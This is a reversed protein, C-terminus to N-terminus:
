ESWRRLDGVRRGHPFRALCERAARRAGAEDGTQALAQVRRVRLDEELDRPVGLSLATAFSRAAGRPDGLREAQLRGLTFAVVPTQADTPRRALFRQYLAAAAPYRRAERAAEAQALLDEPAGERALAGRRPARPTTELPVAVVPEPLPVVRETVVAAMAVAAPAPARVVLVEGAGLALRGSPVTPGEVTVRGHWVRVSLGGESRELTFSTGTVRVTAVGCAVSWRRPGGPTVDYRATGSLLMSAFQSGSNGSPVWRAGASLTVRSRDDLTLVRGDPGATVAM